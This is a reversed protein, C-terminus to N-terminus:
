VERRNEFMQEVPIKILFHKSIIMLNRECMTLSALFGRSQNLITFGLYEMTTVIIALLTIM